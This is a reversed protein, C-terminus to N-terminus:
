HLHEFQFIIVVALMPKAFHPSLDFSFIKDFYHAFQSKM